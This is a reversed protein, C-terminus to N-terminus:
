PAILLTDHLQLGAPFAALLPLRVPLPESKELPLCIHGDPYSETIM